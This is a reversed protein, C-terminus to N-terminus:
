SKIEKDEAATGDESRHFIVRHPFPIEIGLEDFKRKIRRLMERKVAWQRLPRTKILFKIVVASDNFSDVGLMEPADLILPAFEPDRQMQRGLDMLVDMVHDANERYAVGIDFVARSWGHTMNTVKKVEGHPIFHASGDLDRLVTMRLTIREVCGAADGIRIVDNIAYQNELLIMFGNFYDKILSQAGFAVALGFVAAGGLLPIINISVETLIMLIGGCIIVTSTFNRFVSALTKARSEREPVTANGPRGLSMLKVIRHEAVRISWLLVLGGLIIGLIRPGHDILWQLVNQASFPNTLSELQQKAQTAETKEQELKTLAENQETQLDLLDSKMQDLSAVHQDVETDADTARKEAENV